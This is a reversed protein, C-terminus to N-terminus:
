SGKEPSVHMLDEGHQRTSTRAFAQHYQSINWAMINKLNAPTGNIRVKERILPRLMGLTAVLESEGVAVAGVPVGDQLVIKLYQDDTLSQDVWLERGEEDMYEGMSAVTVDFMQTVNMNLSGLYRDSKQAMCNGAVTGTEVATPWLAHVVARGDLFSPVMAVDGAAYIGPLSTEMRDNVVVGQPGALGTNKLFDVNPRVGTGVIILDVVLDRGDGFHLVYEGRRSRTVETTLTGVRLDVGKERIRGALIESGREDLAKPMIRDMLEIVAVHLGKVLAAWAGQLSVFGSGLVAVRKGPLFNPAIRRADHLTWLHHVGEGALGKVPPKVPSSGSAVLLKDYPVIRGDALIVQHEGALVDVVRGKICTAGLKQYYDDARIFLKDFTVKERLYYPLMVRSYPKIEECTIVTVSSHHDHKRFAELCCLGAASNGIIVMKM